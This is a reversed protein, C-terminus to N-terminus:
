SQVSNESSAALVSPVGAPSLRARVTACNESRSPIRNRYVPAFVQLMMLVAWLATSVSPMVHPVRYRMVPWITTHRVSTRRGAGALPRPLAAFVRVVPQRRNPFRNPLLLRRNGNTNSPHPQLTVSLRQQPRPPPPPSREEKLHVGCLLAAFAQLALQSKTPFASSVANLFANRGRNGNPAYLLPPLKPPPPPLIERRFSRRESFYGFNGGAFNERRAGLLKVAFESASSCQSDLRTGRHVPRLSPELIHKNGDVAWWSFGRVDPAPWHGVM